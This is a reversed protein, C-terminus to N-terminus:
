LGFARPWSWRAGAGGCGPRDLRRCTVRSGGRRHCHGWAAGPAVPLHVRVASRLARPAPVSHHAGGWGGARRPPRRPAVRGLLALRFRRQSQCTARPPAAQTPRGPLLRVQVSQAGWAAAAAAAPLPGCPRPRPSGTTWTPGLHTPPHHSPSPALGGDRWRPNRVERATLMGTGLGLGPGEERGDLGLAWLAGQARELGVLTRPNHLCSTDWSTQRPTPPCCGPHRLPLECACSHTRSSVGALYSWM